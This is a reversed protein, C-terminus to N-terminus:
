TSRRGLGLSWRERSTKRVPRPADTGGTVWAAASRTSCSHARSVLGASNAARRAEKSRKTASSLRWYGAGPPRGASLAAIVVKSLWSSIVQGVGGARIRSKQRAVRLRSFGPVENSRSHSTFRALDAIRDKGGSHRAHPAFDPSHRSEEGILASVGLYAKAGSDRRPDGPRSSM